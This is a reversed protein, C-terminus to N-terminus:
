AGAPRGQMAWEGGQGMGVRYGTYRTLGNVGQSPNAHVMWEVSPSAVMAVAASRILAWRSRARRPSRLNVTSTLSSSRRSIALAPVLAGSAGAVVLLRV